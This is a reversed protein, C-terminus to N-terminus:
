AAEHVTRSANERRTTPQDISVEADAVRAVLARPMAMWPRRGADPVSIWESWPVWNVDQTNVSRALRDPSRGDIPDMPSQKSLATTSDNQPGPHLHLQEVPPPPAGPDLQGVRDELVQLDEVFRCRRCLERPIRVGISNSFICV